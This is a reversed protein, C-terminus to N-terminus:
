AEPYYSHGLIMWFYQLPVPADYSLFFCSWSDPVLETRNFVGPSDLTSKGLYLEIGRSLPRAMKNNHYKVLADKVADLQNLPYLWERLYPRTSVFKFKAKRFSKIVFKTMLKSCRKGGLVYRVFNDM